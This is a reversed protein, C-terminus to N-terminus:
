VRPGAERTSADADPFSRAFNDAFMRALERAKRDYAEPDAWTSRPDLLKADVGPVALPVRFGFVDDIRLEVDDLEGTLAARLM